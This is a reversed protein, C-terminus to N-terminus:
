HGNQAWIWHNTILTILGPKLNIPHFPILTFADKVIPSSEGV